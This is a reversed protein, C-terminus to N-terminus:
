TGDLVEVTDVAFRKFSGNAKLVDVVLCVDFKQNKMIAKVPQVTVVHGIWGLKKHKVLDGVKM